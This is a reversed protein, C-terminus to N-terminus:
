KLNKLETQYNTQLLRKKLLRNLFFILYKEHDRIISLHYQVPEIYCLFM